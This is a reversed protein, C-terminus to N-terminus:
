LFFLKNSLSPDVNRGVIRGIIFAMKHAFQCTTPVPPPNARQNDNTFFRANTNKKVITYVLKPKTGWSSPTQAFGNKMAAIEDRYVIVLEPLRSNLNFYSKMAEKTADELSDIIEKRSFYKQFRDDITAVFDVVSHSRMDSNRGVDIGIVM